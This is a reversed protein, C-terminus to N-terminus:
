EGQRLYYDEDFLSKSVSGLVLGEIQYYPLADKVLSKILKPAKLQPCSGIDPIVIANICIRAQSPLQSLNLPQRDISEELLIDQTFEEQDLVGKDKKMPKFFQLPQDNLTVNSGDSIVVPKSYAFCSIRTSGLYVAAQIQLWMPRFSLPGGVSKMNRIKFQYSKCAGNVKSKFNKLDDHQKYVIKSILAVADESDKGKKM